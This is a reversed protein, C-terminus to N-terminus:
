FADDEEMRLYVFDGTERCLKSEPSIDEYEPVLECTISAPYIMTTQMTNVRFVRGKSNDIGGPIIFLAGRQLDHLDYPVHIIVADTNLESVWGMKKLTKQDPHEDFICGVIEPEQYNAKIEGHLTFHIDTRPARYVVQIGLLKVMEKFYNRHIKINPTLLTGYKLNNLDDM